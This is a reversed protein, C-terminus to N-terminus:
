PVALVPAAATLLRAQSTSVNVLYCVASRSAPASCAHPMAAPLAVSAAHAPPCSSSAPAASRVVVSPNAVLEVGISLRRRQEVSLGDVGASGVLNGRIDLLETVMLVELVYAERLSASVDATLRLAASFHLSEEVTLGASHIDVQEVYGVVRSWSEQQKAHGNVLVDGRTVGQTKRGARPCARRKMGTVKHAGSLSIASALIAIYFGQM